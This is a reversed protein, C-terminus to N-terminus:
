GPTRRRTANVVRHVRIEAEPRRACNEPAPDLTDDANPRANLAPYREFDPSLQEDLWRAPIRLPRRDGLDIVPILGTAVARYVVGPSVRLIRAAESVTYVDRKVKDPKRDTQSTM